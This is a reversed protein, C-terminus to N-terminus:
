RCNNDTTLYPLIEKQRETLSKYIRQLRRPTLTNPFKELITQSILILSLISVDPGSVGRINMAYLDMGFTGALHELYPKFIGVSAEGPGALDTHDETSEGGAFFWFMKDPIEDFIYRVASVTINSVQEGDGFSTGNNSDYYDM